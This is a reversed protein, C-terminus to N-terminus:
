HSHTFTSANLLDTTESKKPDLVRVATTLHTPSLHAYRLTQSPNTHGLLTGITGIPHGEDRAM